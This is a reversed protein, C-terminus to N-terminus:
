LKGFKRAKKQLELYNRNQEECELVISGLVPLTDANVEPTSFLCWTSGTVEPILYARVMPNVQSSVYARISYKIPCFLMDRVKGTIKCSLLGPGPRQFSILSVKRPKKTHKKGLKIDLM